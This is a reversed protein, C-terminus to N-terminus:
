FTILKGTVVSKPSDSEGEGSLPNGGLLLINQGDGSEMNIDQKDQGQVSRASSTVVTM